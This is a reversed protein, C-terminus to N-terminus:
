PATALTSTPVITVVMSGVVKPLRIISHGRKRLVELQGGREDRASEVPMATRLLIDSIPVADEIIPPGLQYAVGAGRKLHYSLLHV